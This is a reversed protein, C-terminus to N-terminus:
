SVSSAVTDIAYLEGCSVADDKLLDPPYRAWFKQNINLGEM